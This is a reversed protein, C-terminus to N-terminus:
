PHPSRRLVKDYRFRESTASCHFTLEREDGEITCRARKLDQLAELHRALKSPDYSRPPDELFRAASEMERTAPAEGDFTISAKVVSVTEAIRDDKAERGKEYVEATTLDVGVLTPPEGAHEVRCRAFFKGDTVKSVLPNGSTGAPDPDLRYPKALAWSGEYRRCYRPVAEDGSAAGTVTWFTEALKYMSGPGLATLGSARVPVLAPASSLRTWVVAVGVAVAAAAIGALALGKRLPHGGDVRAARVSVPPVEIPARAASVAGGTRRVGVVKVSEPMPGLDLIEAVRDRGLRANISQNTIEETGFVKAWMAKVDDWGDFLEGGTVVRAHHIWMFVLVEARIQIPRGGAVLSKCLARFGERQDPVAPLEEKIVDRASRLEAETPRGM